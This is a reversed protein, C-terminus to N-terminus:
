AISMALTMKEKPVNEYNDDEDDWFNSGSKPKGGNVPVYFPEVLCTESPLNSAKTTSPVTTVSILQKTGDSSIKFRRM